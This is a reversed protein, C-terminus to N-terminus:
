ILCSQKKETEKLFNVKEYNLKLFVCCVAVKKVAVVLGFAKVEGSVGEFVPARECVSERWTETRERV